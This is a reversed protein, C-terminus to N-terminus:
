LPEGEKLFLIRFQRRQDKLWGLFDEDLNAARYIALDLQQEYYFLLDRYRRSRLKSILNEPPPLISDPYTM